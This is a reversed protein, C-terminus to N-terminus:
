QAVRQRIRELIPMDSPVLRGSKQLSEAVALAKQWLTPDNNVEALQASSAM